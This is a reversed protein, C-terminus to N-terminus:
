CLRYGLGRIALIKDKLFPFKQKLRKIAINISKDSTTDNKWVSESLFQRSLTENKNEFFCRLLEFELTSLVISKGEYLCEREGLLLVCDGYQLRDKLKRRMMAKLRLLLERMEFPKCLYDDCGHEFGEYVEEQKSKATLFIVSEEYGFTRLRQISKISDGSPLNRDIILVDVREGQLIKELDPMDLFSQVSMGEERLHLCILENLDKEDEILVVNLM